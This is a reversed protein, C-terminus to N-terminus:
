EVRVKAVRVVKGNLRYGDLVIESIKGGAEDDAEDTLSGTRSMAEGIKEGEGGVAEPLNPDFV